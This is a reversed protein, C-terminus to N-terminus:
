SMTSATSSSTTSARLASRSQAAAAASRAVYTLWGARRAHRRTPPLPLSIFDAQLSFFLVRGKKLAKQLCVCAEPLPAGGLDGVCVCERGFSFIFCFFVRFLVWM